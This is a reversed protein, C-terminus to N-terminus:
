AKLTARGTNKFAKGSRKYERETKSEQETESVLAWSGKVRSHLQPRGQIGWNRQEGQVLGLEPNM